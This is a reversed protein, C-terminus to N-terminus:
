LKLLQCAITGTATAGGYVVVPITEGGDVPRSPRGDLALIEPDWLALAATRWGTGGLAAAQVDTWSPPVRLCQRGDAVLYQAFAGEMPLAPNYGFITGCVRMGLEPLNQNLEEAHRETTAPVSGQEGHSTSDDAKGVAVVVGCFDCGAISGPMPLHTPMKHDMPNLAVALVRVLVQHPLPSPIRVSPNVTLPLPGSSPSEKPKDSQVIASQTEGKSPKGINLNYITM